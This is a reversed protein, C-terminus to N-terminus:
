DLLGPVAEITVCRAQWDTARVVDDIVPVLVERGGGRVVWVDHAGNSFIEEIRGVVRGDTLRVECGIAEFYYFEGPAPAPLEAAAAYAIAGRLAAARGADGIGALTIKRLGRNLHEVAALEYQELQGNHELVLRALTDLVGSQSNDLKIKLSGRVGHPGAIYGLRVLKRPDIPDSSM